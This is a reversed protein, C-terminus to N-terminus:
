TPNTTCLTVSPCTNEWYKPKGRAVKMGGVAGRENDDDDDQARVISWNTASTGLPETEVWGFFGFFFFVTTKKRANQPHLVCYL